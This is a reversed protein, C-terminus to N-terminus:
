SRGNGLRGRPGALRHADDQNAPRLRACGKSQPSTPVNNAGHIAQGRDFYLPKYMNGNLPNDEAVPYSSSNHWGGNQLAPNFRTAPRREQLRTEYGAEGTSTPFVFVLRDLGEGALLVQCTLDIFIWRGDTAVNPPMPLAVAALLFQEELSGPAM